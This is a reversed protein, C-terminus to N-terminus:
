VEAHSHNSSKFDQSGEEPAITTTLNETILSMLRRHELRARALDATLQKTQLRIRRQESRMEALQAMLIEQVASQNRPEIERCRIWLDLEEMSSVVPSRLKKHTRHVPLGLKEWRQATRVTLHLHNSIEKWGQLLDM